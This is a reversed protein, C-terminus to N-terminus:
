YCANGGRQLKNQPGAPAHVHVGWKGSAFDRADLMARSDTGPSHGPEKRGAAKIQWGGQNLNSASGAKMLHALTSKYPQYPSERLLVGPFM